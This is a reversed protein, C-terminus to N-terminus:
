YLRLVSPPKWGHISLAVQCLKGPTMLSLIKSVMVPVMTHVVEDEAITIGVEEEVEDEEVITTKDAITTTMITDTTVIGIIATIIIITDEEVVITTAELSTDDM